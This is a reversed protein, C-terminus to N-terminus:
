DVPPVKEQVPAKGNRIAELFGRFSPSLGAIAGPKLQTAIEKSVEHTYVRKALLNELHQKPNVIQDPHTADVSGLDRGGLCRRLGISDAFFWAELHQQAFAFQLTATMRGVRGPLEQRFPRLVEVPDKADTDVLVVFKDPTVNGPPHYWGTQVLKCAMEVNLARSRPPILIDDVVIDEGGLHLLLHPLASEETKGSAIVVVHKTM